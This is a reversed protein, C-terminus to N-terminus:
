KLSQKGTTIEEKRNIRVEKKNLSARETNRKSHTKYQQVKLKQKNSFNKIEGEIKFSIIAPYFIRPQFYKGKLVKFIDQWERRAHLTEISFDASLRIPTGQYNISQNERAAKLIREKNKGKAM